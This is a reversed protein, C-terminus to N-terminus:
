RGHFRKKHDFYCTFPLDTGREYNGIPLLPKAQFSVERHVSGPPPGSTHGANIQDLGASWGRWEASGEGKALDFTKLWCRVRRTLFNASTAQWMELDQFGPQNAEDGSSADHSAVMSQAQYGARVFRGQVYKFQQEDWYVGHHANFGAIYLSNNAIRVSTESPSLIDIKAM